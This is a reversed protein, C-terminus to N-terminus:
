GCFGSCTVLSLSLLEHDIYLTWLLPSPRLALAFQGTAM